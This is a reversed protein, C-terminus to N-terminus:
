IYGRTSTRAKCRREEVVVADVALAHRALPAHLVRVVIMLRMLHELNPPRRIVVDDPQAVESWDDVREVQLVVHDILCLHPPAPGQSKIFEEKRAERAPRTEFLHISLYICLCASEDM